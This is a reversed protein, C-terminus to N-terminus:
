KTLVKKSWSKKNCEPCRLHRTRGIHPAFFVAAYTPVYRHHCVGCEYYGASQEIKISYCVGLTLIIIGVAILIVRYMTPMEIYSATFLLALFSISSIYCLATEAKLLLRDAAEKEKVANEIYNDM